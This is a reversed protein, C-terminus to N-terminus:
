GFGLPMPSALTAPSSCRTCQRTVRLTTHHSQVSALGRQTSRSRDGRGDGPGHARWTNWTCDPHTHQILQAGCPTRVRQQQWRGM